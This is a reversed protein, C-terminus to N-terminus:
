AAAKEPKVTKVSFRHGTSTTAYEEYIDPRLLRLRELSEKSITTRSTPTNSIVYPSDTGCTAKCNSGMEMLISAKLKKMANDVAKMQISLSEKQKQLAMYREVIAQVRNDLMAITDIPEAAAMQHEVSQLVLDGRETYPPPVRAQVHNEWFAKEMYVIEQEMDSHRDVRRIIVDDESNAYLCCTFALDLNLVCQYHRVQLEYHKPVIGNEGDWWQARNNYHTTKTELIATQNDPMDVFFDVDALMFPYLPHYFMEQTKYVPRGIKLSFIKAVLEELLKGVELQVWNEENDIPTAVGIKDYYLDRATLYPSLGFVAAVDSGGIGRRRYELWEERTLSSTNVLVQPQYDLSPMKM